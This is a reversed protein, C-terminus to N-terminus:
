LLASQLIVFEPNDLVKKFISLPILIIYFLINQVKVFKEM